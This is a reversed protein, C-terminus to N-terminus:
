KGSSTPQAQPAKSSKTHLEEDYYCTAKWERSVRDFMGGSEVNPDQESYFSFALAQKAEKAGVLDVSVKMVALYDKPHLTIDKVVRIDKSEWTFRMETESKKEGLWEAGQPIDYTSDEFWVRLFDYKDNDVRILNEPKPTKGSRDVMRESLLEWSSISAGYSSFKVRLGEFEFTYFKEEGRPTVPVQASAEESAADGSKADGSGTDGSKADGSKADGSTGAESDVEAKPDEQPVEPPFIASWALMIGFAIAVALM